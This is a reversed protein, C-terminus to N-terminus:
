CRLMNLFDTWWWRCPQWSIHHGKEGRSWKDRKVLEVEWLEWELTSFMTHCYSLLIYFIIAAWLSGIERVKYKLMTVKIYIAYIWLYLLVLMKKKKYLHYKEIYVILVKRKLYLKLIYKPSKKGFWYRCLKKIRKLLHM